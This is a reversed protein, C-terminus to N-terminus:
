TMRADKWGYTWITLTTTGTARHRIQGSTNCRSEFTGAQVGPSSVGVLSYHSNTTATDGEDPSTFVVGDAASHLIGRYLVDLKIGLPVSLAQLAATTTTSAGAADRIPTVRLFKDGFQVFQIISASERLFSGIRRKRDYNSPMTPATPSLSCLIDVVSTDSRQIVFVFYTGNGIAGTDLMGQNTGVAWAADSRKILASALTMYASRDIAAVIGASVSIDNTADSGDNSIILGDPPSIIVNQTTANLTGAALSLGTGIAIEEAAGTGATSRGLLKATAITLDTDKYRGNLKLTGTAIDFDDSIAVEEVIGAGASFRGFLRATAAALLGTATLNIAGTLLMHETGASDKYYWFGDNKPYIVSKGASPTTPGVTQEALILRSM